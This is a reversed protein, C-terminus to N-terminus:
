PRADKCLQFIMFNNQALTLTVAPKQGVQKRDGSEFSAPRLFFQFSFVSLQFSFDSM